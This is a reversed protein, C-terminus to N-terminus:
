EKADPILERAKAVVEGLQGHAAVRGTADILLSHPIARVGYTATLRGFGKDGSEPEVDICVPYEINFETLFKRVKQIESGSTHVGIVTIGSTERDAHLKNMTPLDGRCPGCWESFFDLIVVRGKLSQWSLSEGNLWTTTPFEVAPKGYHKAIAEDQEQFIKKGLALDADRKAVLELMEAETRDRKYEYILPPDYRYDSTRVGDKLDLDFLDDSLIPNIQIDFIKLERRGAQYVEGNEVDFTTYGHEWPIWFGSTVERYDDLYHEFQPRMAIKESVRNILGHLRRDEVGIYLTAQQGNQLVYCERNRYVKRGVHQFEKPSGYGSWTDHPSWWFLHRGAKLWGLCPVSRFFQCKGSIAVHEYKLPIHLEHTKALTGNWVRLDLRGDASEHRTRIRKADYILEEHETWTPSLETLRNAPIEKTGLQQQIERRQVDIARPTRTWTGSVRVLLSEYEHVKNELDVIGQVLEAANPESCHGSTSELAILVILAMMSTSVVSKLPIM